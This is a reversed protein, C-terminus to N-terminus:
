LKSRGSLSQKVLMDTNQKGFIVIRSKWKLFSTTHDRWFKWGGSAENQLSSTKSKTKKFVSKLINIDQDSFTLPLTFSSSVLCLFSLQQFLNGSFATLSDLSYALSFSLVGRSSFHIQAYIFQGSWTTEDIYTHPTYTSIHPWEEQCNRNETHSLLHTVPLLITPLTSCSAQPCLCPPSVTPTLNPTLASRPSVSCALCCLFGSSPPLRSHRSAAATPVTPLNEAPLM